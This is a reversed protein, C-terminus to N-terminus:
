LTRPADERLGTKVPFGGIGVEEVDIAGQQVAAVGDVIVRKVFSHGVNEAEVQLEVTNRHVSIGIHSDQARIQLLSTHGFLVPTTLQRLGEVQHTGLYFAVGRLQLGLEARRNRLQYSTQAALALQEAHGRSIKLAYAPCLYAGGPQAVIEREACKGSLALLPVVYKSVADRLRSCNASRMRSHAYDAIGGCIDTRRLVIVNWYDGYGRADIAKVLQLSM